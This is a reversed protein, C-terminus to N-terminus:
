AAWEVLIDTFVTRWDDGVPLLFILCSSFAAKKNICIGDYYLFLNGIKDAEGENIM